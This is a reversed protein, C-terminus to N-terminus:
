IEREQLSQFALAAHHECYPITDTKDAGCFFFGEDRPDGVPWKCTTETLQLLNLRKMQPAYEKNVDINLNEDLPPFEANEEALNMEDCSSEVSDVTQEPSLNEEAELSQEINEETDNAKVRNSLKLRYVKGIVANRSVGGGLQAAIQSATFGEKWLRELLKVREPTWSM